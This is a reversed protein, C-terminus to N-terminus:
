SLGLEGWSGRLRGHVELTGNALWPKFSFM